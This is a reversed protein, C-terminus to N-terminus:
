HCECLLGAYPVRICDKPAVCGSAAGSICIGTTYCYTTWILTGNPGESPVTYCDTVSSHACNSVPGNANVSSFFHSFIIISTLIGVKLSVSRFIRMM